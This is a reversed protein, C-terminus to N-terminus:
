CSDGLPDRDSNALSIKYVRCSQNMSLPNNHFITTHFVIIKGSLRVSSTFDQMEYLM